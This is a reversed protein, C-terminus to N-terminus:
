RFQHDNHNTTALRVKTSWCCRPLQVTKDKALTSNQPEESCPSPPAKQFSEFLYAYWATHATRVLSACIFLVPSVATHWHEIAKYPVGNASCLLSYIRGSQHVTLYNRWYTELMIWVCKTFDTWCQIMETSYTYLTFLVTNEEVSFM